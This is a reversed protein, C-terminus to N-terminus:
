RDGRVLAALEEPCEMDVFHGADLLQVRSQPIADAFQRALGPPAISDNRGWAITTPVRLDRLLHPLSPSFLYPKWAVRAVMERAVDWGILVEIPPEAGFVRDYASQDHFGAKVYADYSILFQDLLEGEAPQIGFSGSLIMRRYRRQDMTAMEAALWGGFGLGVLTIEDLNLQDELHHMLAALDRVSQIWDARESQGWGPLDPVIVAHDVALSEYFPLWSPNGIDHHLVLVPDGSGGRMVHIGSGAVRVTEDQTSEEPPV